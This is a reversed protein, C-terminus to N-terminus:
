EKKSLILLILLFVEMKRRDMRDLYSLIFLISLIMEVKKRNMRYM